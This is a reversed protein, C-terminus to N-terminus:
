RCSQSNDRTVIQQGRIVRIADSVPLIQVGVSVATMVAYEFLGPTCGFKSPEESVDHTYFILWSNPLAVKIVDLRAGQASYRRFIKLM